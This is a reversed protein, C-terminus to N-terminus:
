ICIVKYWRMGMLTAGILFLCFICVTPLTASFNSGKYVTPSFTLPYLVTSVLLREEFILFLVLWIVWCAWRQSHVWFFLFCPRLPINAGRHECAANPVIALFHLGCPEPRIVPYVHHPGDVCHFMVGGQLSPLGAMHCSPILGSSM